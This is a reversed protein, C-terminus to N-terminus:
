ENFDRKGKTNNSFRNRSEWKGTGIGDVEQIEENKAKRLTEMGQVAKEHARCKEITSELTLKNESLLKKRLEDEKIGNVIRDRLLGDVCEGCFNCNKMLMRLETLYDDFLEGENQNRSNFVHREMTENVIGRAFEKM